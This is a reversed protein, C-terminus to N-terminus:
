KLLSQEHTCACFDSIFIRDVSTVGAVPPVGPSFFVAFVSLIHLSFPVDCLALSSLMAVASVDAVDAVASCVTIASVM